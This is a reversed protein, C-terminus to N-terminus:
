RGEHGYFGQLMWETKEYIAQWFARAEVSESKGYAILSQYRLCKGVHRMHAALNDQGGGITRIARGM